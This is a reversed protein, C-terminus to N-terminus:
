LSHGLAVTLEVPHNPLGSKGLAILRHLGDLCVLHGPRATMGSFTSESRPILQSLFLHGLPRGVLRKIGNVFEPAKNQIRGDLEGVVESLLMGAPPIVEYRSADEKSLHWPLSIDALQNGRIRILAWNQGLEKSRLLDLTYLKTSYSKIRTVGNLDDPFEEEFRREVEFFDM